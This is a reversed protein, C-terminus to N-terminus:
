RRSQLAEIKLKALTAYNCNPFRKLHDEYAAVVNLAEASKWHAAADSCDGEPGGGSDSAALSSRPQEL